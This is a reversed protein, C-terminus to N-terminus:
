KKHNQNLRIKYILKDKKMKNNLQNDNQNM